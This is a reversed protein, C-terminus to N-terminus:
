PRAPTLGTNMSGYFNNGLKPSRSHWISFLECLTQLCCACRHDHRAYQSLRNDGGRFYLGIMGITSPAFGNWAFIREENSQLKAVAWTTFIPLVPLRRRYAIQMGAFRAKMIEFAIRDNEEVLRKV